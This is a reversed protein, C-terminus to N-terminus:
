EETLLDMMNVHHSFARSIGHLVEVILEETIPKNVAAGVLYFEALFFWTVLWNYNKDLDTGMKYLPFINTYIENVLFNELIHENNEFFPLYKNEYSVNYIAISEEYSVEGIKLNEIISATVKQYIGDKSFELKLGLVLKTLFSETPKFSALPYKGIRAKLSVVDTSMRDLENLIDSISNYQEPAIAAIRKVYLGLILLRERIGYARNQVIEIAYNRLDWYYYYLEDEEFKNQEAVSISSTMKADIQDEVFEFGMPERNLLIKRAAEPCSLAISFEVHTTMDSMKRPYQYCTYCLTEPGYTKHIHCLGDRFFVCEGNQKLNIQGYDRSSMKNKNRDILHVGEESRTIKLSEYLKFSKKDVFIRWDKCCHNECAEAICHFDDYFSPKLIKRIM